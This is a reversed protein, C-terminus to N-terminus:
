GQAHRVVTCGYPTTQAPDPDRGELVAEVAAQLYFRTATRRRFTVDDFAGQYRLVGGRDIVFLHPTTEAGYLDAVAQQPDHLVIGLGRGAAARRLLELPENANSAVRLVAIRGGWAARYAALEADARAAQPCEASWFNLVVARGLFASLCAPRGELDLLEFDPVKQGNPILAAM